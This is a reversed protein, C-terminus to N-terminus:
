ENNTTGQKGTDPERNLMRETLNGILPYRFDHGQLVRWSAIYGLLMFLIMGIFIAFFITGLGIFPLLAFYGGGEGPAILVALMPMFFIGLMYCGFLVFYAILGTAHYIMAQLSQFRILESRDKQSIWFVLPIIGGIMLPMVGAHSLAAALRDAKREDINM